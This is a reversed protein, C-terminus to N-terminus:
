FTLSLNLNPDSYPLWFVSLSAEHRAIVCVLSYHRAYRGSEILIYVVFNPQRGSSPHRATVSGICSFAFSPRFIFKTSPKIGNPVLAGLFIYIYHVLGPSPWVDHLTQNVEVSRHQHLISALVCFGSFNAPSRWVGSSIEATLPVVNVMNHPCTPSISTNLLNKRDDICAETAFVCASM